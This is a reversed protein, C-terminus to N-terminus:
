SAIRRQEEVFMRIGSSQYRRLRYVENVLYWRAMNDMQLDQAQERIADIDKIRPTLQALQDLISHFWDRFADDQVSGLRALTGNPLQICRNLTDHETLMLALGEDLNTKRRKKHFARGKNTM